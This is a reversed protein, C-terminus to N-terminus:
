QRRFVMPNRLKDKGWLLTDGDIRIGSKGNLADLGGFSVMVIRNEADYDVMTMNRVSGGFGTMEFSLTKSGAVFRMYFTASGGLGNKGHLVWTGHATRSLADFAEEPTLTASRLPTSLTTERGFEISGQLTAPRYDALALEVKVPGAPLDGLVLPTTGVVKGDFSVSAGAPKSEVKLSGPAAFTAECTTLGGRTVEATVMESPWGTRAYTIRYGGVPLDALTAPTLGRETRGQGEVVYDVAFPRSALALGGGILDGTVTATGDRRVITPRSQAPWGERQFTVTAAGIPVDDFVEPTRGTRTRGYVDKLTFDVETPEATVQLLGTLTLLETRKAPISGQLAAVAQSYAEIQAAGEEWAKAAVLEELRARAVRAPNAALHERLWTVYRDHAQVLAQAARLDPTVGGRAERQVAREDAKLDSLEREALAETRLAADLAINLESLRTRLKLGLQDLRAQEAKAAVIARAKEEEAHLRAAEDHARESEARQAAAVAAKETVMKEEAAIRAKEKNEARTKMVWWGGAALVVVAILAVIVFEKGGSKPQKAPPLSSPDPNTRGGEATQGRGEIRKQERQLVPLTSSDAALTLTEFATTIDALSERYKAQLGPTPAKAIKDELKRRLELFRAETQDSTAEASLDLLRAAEIPTM